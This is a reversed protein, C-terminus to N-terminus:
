ESPVERLWGPGFNHILQLRTGSDVALHDALEGYVVVDLYLGGRESLNGGIRAEIVSPMSETLRGLDYLVLGLNVVSDGIGELAQVDQNGLLLAGFTVMTDQGVVLENNELDHYTYGGFFDATAALVAGVASISNEIPNVTQHYLTISLGEEIPVPDLSGGAFALVEVLAGAGSFTLAAMDCTTALAAAVEAIEGNKPAIGPGPEDHCITGAVGCRNHGSPDRFGMPNNYVYSYRNVSQPDAPNPVISDASAFRGVGPVYYRARMYILAIEDNQAHGTFGKDTLDASPTVRYEGYPYFRVTSTVVENGNIDSLTSTSGLHDSHFWYVDSSQGDDVRMAIRQGGLYYYSRTTSGEVEYHEGVFVTSSSDPNITMVRAGSGDYVFRTVSLTLTDTIAVLRNEVDFEQLYAGSGDSRTTINGNSDYDFSWGNSLSRM